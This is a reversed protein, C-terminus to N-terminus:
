EPTQISMTSNLLYVACRVWTWHCFIHYPISSGYIMSRASQGYYVRKRFPWNTPTYVFSDKFFIRSTIMSINPAMILTCFKGVNHAFKNRTIANYKKFHDLVENKHSWVHLFNPAADKFLVFCKMGKSVWQAACTVTSWIELASSPRILFLSRCGVRSAM